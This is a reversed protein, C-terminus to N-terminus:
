AKVADSFLSFLFSIDTIMSKQLFCLFQHRVIVGWEKLEPVESVQFRLRENSTCYTSDCAATNSVVSLM